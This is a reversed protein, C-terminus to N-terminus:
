KQHRRALVERAKQRKLQQSSMQSMDDSSVNSSVSRVHSNADTSTLDSPNSELSPTTGFQLMMANYYDQNTAQQQQQKPVSSHKKNRAVMIMERKSRPPCTSSSRSSSVSAVSSSSSPLVAAKGREALWKKPSRKRRSSYSRSSSKPNLSSLLDMENKLLDGKNSTITTEVVSITTSGVSSADSDRRELNHHRDTPTSGTTRAKRKQMEKMARHRAAPIPSTSAHHQRTASTTENNSSKPTSLSKRHRALMMRADRGRSSARAPPLPSVSSADRVFSRSTVSTTSTPGNNGSASQNRNRKMEMIDAWRNRRPTEEVDTVVAHPKYHGSNNCIVKQNMEDGSQTGYKSVLKQMAPPLSRLSPSVMDQQHNMPAASPTVSAQEKKISYHRYPKPPTAQDRTRSPTTTSQRTPSRAELAKMKLGHYGNRPPTQKRPPPSRLPRHIKKPSNRWKVPSLQNMSYKASTPSEEDMQPQRSRPASAARQVQRLYALKGAVSQATNKTKNRTATITNKPNENKKQPVSAKTNTVPKTPLKKATPLIGVRATFSLSAPTTQKPARKKKVSAPRQKQYTRGVIIMGNNDAEDEVDGNSCFTIPSLPELSRRQLLSLRSSPSSTCGTGLSDLSSRPKTRPQSSINEKRPPSLNRSHMHSGSGGKSKTGVSTAGSSASASLALGRRQMLQEYARSNM